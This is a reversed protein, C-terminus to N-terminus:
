DNKTLTKTNGDSSGLIVIDAMDLFLGNDVVGPIANIKQHLLNPQQISKFECDFTYNGNDTVFPKDDLLRLNPICGLKQLQKVSIEYGFQVVEVPLPFAGLRSVLKKEDAIIIYLKTASAVIKERLLAGGGGKVLNLNGDIEDAGDITIDLQVIDAFSFIQIGCEKALFESQASTAIAKVQLGHKVREAISQIAWYATSGTGLGISMGTKVYEVAKEAAIKKTNILQDSM